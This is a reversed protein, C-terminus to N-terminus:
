FGYGNSQDAFAVLIEEEEKFHNKLLAYAQLLSSAMRVADEHRVPRPAQDLQELFVDIHHEALEHEQEMLTFVDMDNGFYWVALPFLETEEWESHANLQRKYERVTAALVTLKDSLLRPDEESRAACAAEYLRQLGDQLQAHETRVRMIADDLRNWLAAAEPATRPTLPEHTKM